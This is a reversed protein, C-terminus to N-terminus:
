SNENDEKALYNAFDRETSQIQEGRTVVREAAAIHDALHAGDDADAVPAIPPKSSMITARLPELRDQLEKRKAGQELLRPEAYVAVARAFQGNFEAVDRSREQMAAANTPDPAIARPLVEYLQPGFGAPLETASANLHAPPNVLLYLADPAVPNYIALFVKRGGAISAAHQQARSQKHAFRLGNVVAGNASIVVRAVKHLLLFIDKDNPRTIKRGELQMNALM